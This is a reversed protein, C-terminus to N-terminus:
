LHKVGIQQIRGLRWGIHELWGLAGFKANHSEARRGRVFIDRELDDVLLPVKIVAVSETTAKISSDKM